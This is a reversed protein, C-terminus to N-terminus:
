TYIYIYSLLPDYTFYEVWVQWDRIGSCGVSWISCSREEQRQLLRLSHPALSSQPGQGAWAMPIWGGTCLFLGQSPPDVHWGYSHRNKRIYISAKHFVARCRREQASQKVDEQILVNGEGQDKRISRTYNTTQINYLKNLWGGMTSCTAWQGHNPTIFLSMIIITTCMPKIGDGKWEERTKKIFLIKIRDM